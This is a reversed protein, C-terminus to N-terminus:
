FWVCVSLPIWRSKALAGTLGIERGYVGLHPNKNLPHEALSWEIRKLRRVALIPAPHSAHM